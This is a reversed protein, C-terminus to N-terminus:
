PAIQEFWYENRHGNFQVTLYMNTNTIFDDGKIATASVVNPASATNTLIRAFGGLVTSAPSISYSTATAAPTSDM